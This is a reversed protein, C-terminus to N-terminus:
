TPPRRVAGAAAVPIGAGDAAALLARLEALVRTLRAAEHPSLGAIAREALRVLQRRRRRVHAAGARTAAVLVGRRDDPDARREALGQSELVDVNRSATADTTGLADALSGLRTPGHDVLTALMVGQYTTLM